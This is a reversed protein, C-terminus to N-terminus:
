LPKKSDLTATRLIVNCVPCFGKNFSKGCNACRYYVRKSNDGNLARNVFNIDYRTIRAIETASYGRRKLERVQNIARQSLYIDSM